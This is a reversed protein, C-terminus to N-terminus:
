QSSFPITALVTVFRDTMVNIKYERATGEIGRVVKIQYGEKPFNKWSRLRILLFSYLKWNKTHDWIQYWLVFFM